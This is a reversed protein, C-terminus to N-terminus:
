GTIMVDSSSITRGQTDSVVLTFTKGVSNQNRACLNWMYRTGSYSWGDSGITYPQPCNIPQLNDCRSNLPSIYLTDGAKFATINYGGGAFKVPNLNADTISSMNLLQTTQEKLGTGFTPGDYISFVLQSTPLSDGGAHIIQMGQSVSFTGQITAQYPKTQSSVSGGAFASVVAAIIITVVLMLMVGVVPSVASTNNFSKM